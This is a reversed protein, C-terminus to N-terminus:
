IFSIEPLNLAAQVLQPQLQDIPVVYGLAPIAYQEAVFRTMGFHGKDSTHVQLIPTASAALGQWLGLQELYQQSGYTLAIARGDNKIPKDELSPKKAEIIAINLHRLAFALCCGVLGGGVIIIDFDTRM